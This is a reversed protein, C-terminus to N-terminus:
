KLNFFKLSKDLQLFRIGYGCNEPPVSNLPDFANDNISMGQTGSFKKYIFAGDLLPILHLLQQNGKIKPPIIEFGLSQRIKRTGSPKRKKKVM